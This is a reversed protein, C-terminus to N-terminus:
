QFLTLYLRVKPLGIIYRTEEGCKHLMEYFRKKLDNANIINYTLKLKYEKNFQFLWSSQGNKLTLFM